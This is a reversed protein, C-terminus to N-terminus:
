RWKAGFNDAVRDKKIQLDMDVPMDAEALATQESIIGEKYLRLLTQDFTVMGIANNQGIVERIKATEGRLILERIYGENLMVEYALVRGGKVAPVLRQSIIARVNLALNLRVQPIHVQDFFNLIREIAQYANNAHITTLCLHGTEAAVLAQEMVYRDRVEGVMIVDPKQRFANKLAVHYNDTDVGIERQSIISKEHSHLYEIPDEITIIHSSTTRNRYNIMSALTTSKGSGTMGCIIVIGRKLMVLERLDERLGLGTFEPIDRKIARFVLTASQRQHMINVRFRGVDKVGLSFNMEHRVEFERHQQESLISKVIRNIDDVSLEPSDPIGQMIDNVRLIPPQNVTLYMDSADRQSMAELLPLLLPDM